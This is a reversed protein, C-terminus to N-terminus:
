TTSVKLYSDDMIVKSCEQEDSRDQCQPKGDCRFNMDICTGDKCNFEDLNCAHFSLELLKQGIFSTEDEKCIDQNFYWKNSGFPYESNNAVAFIRSPDNQYKFSNELRWQSIRDDWFIISSGFGRFVFKGNVIEANWSFKNDFSSKECM